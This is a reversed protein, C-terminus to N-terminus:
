GGKLIETIFLSGSDAENAKESQNKYRRCIKKQSTVACIIIGIIGMIIHSIILLGASLIRGTVNLVKLLKM